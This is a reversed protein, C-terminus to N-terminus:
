NKQPNEWTEQVTAHQVLMLAVEDGPTLEITKAGQYQGTNFDREWPLDTSFKAGELDDQLIVRGEESDTLARRAAERIFSESGPEYVEMGDLSFVALEGRFWGGDFLYDVKIQGDEDVTFTGTNFTTM